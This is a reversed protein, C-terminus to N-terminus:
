RKGAMGRRKWEERDREHKQALDSKTMIIVAVAAISKQDEAMHGRVFARDGVAVDPLTIKAAKKLDKEGPPIRLYSTTDDVTAATVAGADSKLTIRKAAADIATVEGIVRDLKVAPAQAHLAVAFLSAAVLAAGYRVM